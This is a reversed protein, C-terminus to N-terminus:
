FGVPRLCGLDQAKTADAPLAMVLVAIPADGASARHPLPDGGGRARCADAAVDRLKRNRHNSAARLLKFAEASSCRQQGMLVGLAQDIM